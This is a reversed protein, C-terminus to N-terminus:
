YFGTFFIAILKTSVNKNRCNISVNKAITNTMKLSVSANVHKM